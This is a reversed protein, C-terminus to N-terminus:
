TKATSSTPWPLTISARLGGLESDDLTLTGGHHGVIQEVIGLGLGHGAVQEDLRTGRNLVDGRYEPAIGPGDDDIQLTLAQSTTSLTLRAQSTAWKGANDLLNGLVELVEDRDWPLSAPRDGAVCFRVRAGHIERLTDLLPPLDSEPKFRAAASVEGTDLRARQLEREILRHIDDLRHRLGQKIDPLHDLEERGLLAEMVALPTKLAHGLNAIGDRSRNLVQEIRSLQHNLETVVPAIEDPMPTELTMRQGEHLQALERQLRDLPKLGLRIVRRQILVLLGAMAGGFGWISWRLWSLRETVPTYDLATTVDLTHGGRQYTGSWVLLKQNGPGDALGPVLGDGHKGIQYDWLSRSRVAQGDDIRISFYHGSYVRNFSARLSEPNPDHKLDDLTPTAILNEADEQLREGLYNRTVHDFLLVSGQSLLLMVVLSAILLGLDLRRTLSMM